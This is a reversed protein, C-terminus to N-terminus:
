EGLSEFNSGILPQADIQPVHCQTCFHRNGAPKALKNGARDLFHSEPIEVSKAKDKGPQKMHCDLCKNTSLNITYKENLHPVLPPQQEFTRPFNEKDENFELVAPAALTVQIDASRLSQLDAVALGSLFLGLMVVVCAVRIISPKM